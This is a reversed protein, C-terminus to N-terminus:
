LDPERVLAEATGALGAGEVRMRMLRFREDVESVAYNIEPPGDAPVFDVGLAAFMARRGPCEMGVLYSVATLGVLRVPEAWAAAAPFQQALDAASILIAGGGTQGAMEELRLDRPARDLLWRSGAPARPLTMPKARDVFSVKLTAVVTGEVEARLSIDAVGRRVLWISVADGVHVPKLFRANLGRPHPPCFSQQAVVDLCWLVVHIGHVIPTGGGPGGDSVHVPNRDGSLPIFRAQDEADFVKTALIAAQDTDM